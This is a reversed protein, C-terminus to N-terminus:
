YVTFNACANLLANANMTDIQKPSRPTRCPRSTGYICKGHNTYLKVVAFAKYEGIDNTFGHQFAIYLKATPFDKVTRTIIYDTEAKCARESTIPREPLIKYTIETINQFSRRLIREITTEQLSGTHCVVIKM